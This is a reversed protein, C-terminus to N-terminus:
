FKGMDVFSDYQLDSADCVPSSTVTQDCVATDSSDDDSDVYELLKSELKFANVADITHSLLADDCAVPVFNSCSPEETYHGSDIVDSINLSDDTVLLSDTQINTSSEDILHEHSSLHIDSISADNVDLNDRSTSDSSRSLEMDANLTISDDGDREIQQLDDICKTSDDSSDSALELTRDLNACSMEDEFVIEVSRIRM